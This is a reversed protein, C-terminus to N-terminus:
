GRAKQAGRNTAIPVLEVRAASPRPRFHPRPLASDPETEAELDTRGRASYPFRDKLSLIPKEFFEWSVVALAFTAALKLGDLAMSDTCNVFYHSPSILANLPLHYLYLGYSITGVYCLRPDRLPRLVPHGACCIVLGVVAFYLLNMRLADLSLVLTPSRGAGIWGDINERVLPYALMAAGLLGLSWAVGRRRAQPSGPEGLAWALLAGLGFGDWNTVLLMPWLWQRAVFASAVLVPISALLARRGFLVAVLPWLVYFQEEAALTWTHGFYICFRPPQASWYHPLFQTFTLYYMWGGTPQRYPLLSRVLLFGLLVAYYIPWIRLIRRAYFPLLFGRDVEHRLIIRTILYGSLVFFLDVASGLVGYRPGLGLHLSLVMIAAIGRLADLEPVRRM